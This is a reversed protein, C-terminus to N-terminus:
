EAKRKRGRKPTIKKADTKSDQKENVVKNLKNVVESKPADFNPEVKRDDIKRAKRVGILLVGDRNTVAEFVDGPLIRCNNYSFPKLAVLKM